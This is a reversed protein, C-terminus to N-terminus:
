FCVFLCKINSESCSQPSVLGLTGSVAALFLLFLKPEPVSTRLPGEMKLYCLVLLGRLKAMGVIVQSTLVFLLAEWLRKVGSSQFAPSCCLITPTCLDFCAAWWMLGLLLTVKSSVSGIGVDWMVAGLLLVKPVLGKIIVEEPWEGCECWLLSRSRQDCTLWAPLRASNVIHFKTLTTKCGWVRSVVM